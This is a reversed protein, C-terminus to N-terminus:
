LQGIDQTGLWDALDDTRGSKKLREAAANVKEASPDSRVPTGARQVKPVAKSATKAKKAGARAKDYLMAKYAISVARSDALNVLDDDTYGETKLFRQVDSRAAKGKEPDGFVPYREVLKINERQLREQMQGKQEEVRQQELYHKEAVAM